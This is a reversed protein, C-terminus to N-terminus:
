SPENVYSSTAFMQYGGSADLPLNLGWRSTPFIPDVIVCARIMMLTNAGGPQVTTVPAINNARDVCAVPTAPFNWVATDVPQLDLLLNTDCNAIMVTNDCIRQRILALRQADTPANIRGLRLDRVAIDTARELLVQRTMLIGSESGMLLLMFFLPSVIAFEVTATGTEDKRWRRWMQWLRTM